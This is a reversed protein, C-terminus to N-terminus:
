KSGGWGRYYSNDILNRDDDWNVFDNSLAPFLAACTVVAVLLAVFWQLWARNSVVGSQGPGTSKKNTTRKDRQM